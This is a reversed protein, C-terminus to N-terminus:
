YVWNMQSVPSLKLKTILYGFSFDNSINETFTKFTLSDYNFYFSRPKESKILQEYRQWLILMSETM